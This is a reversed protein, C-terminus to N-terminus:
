TGGWGEVVAAHVEEPTMPYIYQFKATQNYDGRIPEIADFRITLGNWLEVGGYTGNYVDNGDSIMAEFNLTGQGYPFSVFHSETPASLVEYLRDYDQPNDPDQEIGLEYGYKTGIIDRKTRGTLVQGGYDGELLSFNRGLTAYKLNVKYEVNDVTIYRM